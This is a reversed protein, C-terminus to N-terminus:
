IRNCDPCYFDAAPRGCEFCHCAQGAAPVPELEPGAMMRAEGDALAAADLADLQCAVQEVAHADDPRAVLGAIPVPVPAGEVADILGRVARAVVHRHVLGPVPVVTMKAVASISGSAQAV